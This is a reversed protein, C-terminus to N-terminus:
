GIGELFRALERNYAELNDDHVFHSAGPIEVWRIHPNAERMAQATEAALIDSRGGRLVLTPCQIAKVLPWLDVTPQGLSLRRAARIGELDYKWTIQGDTTAKLSNQVATKIAVEPTEPRVSRILAEAEAWSAFTSPTAELERGIRAGGPAPPKTAPGMDEIVAARVREPHKATYAITNAGGMSHGALIFKGLGLQDVFAEIDAIYADRTYNGDAAWDSEGRGRQDLALLQYQGSLPQAVLDWTRASGRLGHLMVIPPSTREGWEVYHLQLGNVQAFRDTASTQVTM